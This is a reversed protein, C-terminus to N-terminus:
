KNWDEIKHEAYYLCEEVLTSCEFKKRLVEREDKLLEAINKFTPSGNYCGCPAKGRKRNGPKDGRITNKIDVYKKGKFTTESYSGRPLRCGVWLIAKRVDTYVGVYECWSRCNECISIRPM